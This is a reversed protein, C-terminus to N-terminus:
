YGWYPSDFYTLTIHCVGGGIISGIKIPKQTSIYQVNEREKSENDSKQRKTYINSQNSHHSNLDVDDYIDSDSGTDTVVVRHVTSQSVNPTTLWSVTNTDNRLLSPDDEREILDYINSM